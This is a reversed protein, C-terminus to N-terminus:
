PQPQDPAPGYVPEYLQDGEPVEVRRSRAQRIGHRIIGSLGTAVTLVGKSGCLRDIAVGVPAFWDALRAISFAIRDADRRIVDALTEQYAEDPEEGRATDRLELLERITQAVDRRRRELTPTPGPRGAPAGDRRPRGPPRGSRQKKQGAIGHENKRHVGLLLAATKGTFERGCEPCVKAGPTAAPTEDRHGDDGDDDADTELEALDIESM